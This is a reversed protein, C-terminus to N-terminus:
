FPALGASAATSAALITSDTDFDNSARKFEVCEHEWGAILEGLKRELEAPTM